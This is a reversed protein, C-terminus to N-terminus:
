SSFLATMYVITAALWVFSFVLFCLYDVVNSLQKLVPEEKKGVCKKERTKVAWPSGVCRTEAKEGNSCADAFRQTRLNPCSTVNELDCFSGGTGSDSEGPDFETSKQTSKSLDTSSNTDPDELSVVGTEPDDKSRLRPQVKAARSRWTWFPHGSELSSGKEANDGGGGDRGGVGVGVGVGVGGGGANDKKKNVGADSSKKKKPRMMKNLVGLIKVKKQEQEDSKHHLFLILVTAVVSLISLITLITLYQTILPVVDSTKPLYDATLGMQLMVSLLVTISYGVKEGSDAPLIFVLINLLSLACTPFLLNIVFYGPLRGFTIISTVMSVAQGTPLTFSNYTYDGADVEWEGNTVFFVNNPRSDTCNLELEFGRYGIVVLVFNCYHKDYPFYTMDLKCVTLMPAYIWWKIIGENNILVPTHTSLDLLSQPSDSLSNQLNLYPLWIRSSMVTIETQGGYDAPNWQLKEDKWTFILYSNLGVR